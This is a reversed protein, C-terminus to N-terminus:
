GRHVLEQGERLLRPTRLLSPAFGWRAQFASTFRSHSTWGCRAAVEGVPLGTTQLLGLATELRVERVIGAIGNQTAKRDETEADLRRRLTSPSLHLAKAVQEADWDHHLRHSVLRRIREQWSLGGGPVFRTGREALMILVEVLRHRRLPESTGHSMLTSAARTIAQHLEDDPVLTRASLLPEHATPDDLPNSIAEHQQILADSFTLVLAEYRGSGLPDNIADWQTGRPMAVLAGAEVSLVGSPAVLSKRGHRVAILANERITLTAVRHRERTSILAAQGPNQSCSASTM